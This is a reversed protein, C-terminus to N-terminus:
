FFLDFYLYNKENVKKLEEDDALIGCQRLISTNFCPSSSFNALHKSFDELPYFNQEGKLGEREVGGKSDRGREL